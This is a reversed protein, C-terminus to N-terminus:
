VDLLKKDPQLYSNLEKVTLSLHGWVQSNQHINLLGTRELTVQSLPSQEPARLALAKLGEELVAQSEHRASQHKELLSPLGKASPREAELVLCPRIAATVRTCSCGARSTKPETM